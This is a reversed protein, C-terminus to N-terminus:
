KDDIVIGKLNIKLMTLFKQKREREQQTMLPTPQSVEKIVLKAKYEGKSSGEPARVLMKFSKEEAPSLIISKPYIEIWEAMSNKDEGKEVFIRYRKTKNTKNYLVFEEFAGKNIEKEFSIPYINIYGYVISGIFFYTAFLGKFIGRM